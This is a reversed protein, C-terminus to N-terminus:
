RLGRSLRRKIRRVPETMRWTLSGELANLRSLLQRNEELQEQVRSQMLPIQALAQEADLLARSTDQLRETASQEAATARAVSRHAEAEVSQVHDAWWSVEFADGLAVVSELPPLPADSAAVIGYTEGGGDLATTARVHASIDGDPGGHGNAREIRTALWPHQRYADVNAFLEGVAAALEDPRYEHVHHENGSPYVDPNPSSVLLVGGPRLVRHLEGLTRAGDAVHEIAEFCVVVDFSADGFPLDLLDGRTVASPDGFREGAEAVADPDIDVGSVSAAGGSALLAMGYGTGCGADLVDKDRVAQAAWWYRGRHETDILTGQQDRPDFREPHVAQEM